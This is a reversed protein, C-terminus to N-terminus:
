VLEAVETLCTYSLKELMSTTRSNIIVM